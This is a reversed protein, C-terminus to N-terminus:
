IQLPPFASQRTPAFTFVHSSVDVSNYTQYQPVDYKSLTRNNTNMDNTDRPKCEEYVNGCEDVRINCETRNTGTIKWHLSEYLNVPKLKNYNRSISKNMPEYHNYIENLGTNEKQLPLQPKHLTSLCGFDYSSIFIKQEHRPLQEGICSKRAATEQTSSINKPVCSPTDSARSGYVHLQSSLLSSNLSYKEENNIHTCHVLRKGEYTCSESETQLGNRHLDNKSSIAEVKIFLLNLPTTPNILVSRTQLQEDTTHQQSLKECDTCQLGSTPFIQNQTKSPRLFNNYIKCNEANLKDHVSRETIGDKVCSSETGSYTLNEFLNPRCLHHPNTSIVSTNHHKSKNSFTIHVTENNDVSINVKSELLAVNKENEENRAPMSATEFLCSCQGGDGVATNDISDMFKSISYKSKTLYSNAKCSTKIPQREAYVTFSESDSPPRWIPTFCDSKRGSVETPVKRKGTVNFRDGCKAKDRSNRELFRVNLCQQNVSSYANVNVDPLTGIEPSKYCIDEVSDTSQKRCIVSTNSLNNEQHQSANSEGPKPEFGRLSEELIRDLKEVYQSGHLTELIKYCEEL